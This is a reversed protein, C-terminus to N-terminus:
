FRTARKLVWWPAMSSEEHGRRFMENLMAVVSWCRLLLMFMPFLPVLLGLVMDQRPRDSVMVLMAAFMLLTILLYLLYILAFLFLLTKGPLIFLALLTYIFIVFPLVLQFFFGTILIMVFTPWGLLTPSINHNHKRIYLFFLDGDWRLRQMLFQSLTAPADTHGVAEPEFPIRLDHRKFYSKIRLTLDLDEATHTNWGGIKVLFSRRFAGFAGSVNNVLNWEALGIKSMHISLLYELAQMATVWSSWVNRVRLSGAVAPVKPDEFHRVISAVMNNDFSTDGDLAMVIEGGALSLGANLSSVRGGRQWKAIPRLHRKPYLQPDVHFNRVASLTAQNVTAGDVVPIMEIHGGYTQECLSLLTTQVDMGESYCTIICSVKPRYISIKPVSTRRRTFWRLVGLLVIIIMPLEFLIFAPFLMYFLRSLGDPGALASLASLVQELFPSM